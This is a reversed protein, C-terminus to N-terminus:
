IASHVIDTALHTHNVVIGRDAFGKGSEKFRGSEVDIGKTFRLSKKEVQSIM